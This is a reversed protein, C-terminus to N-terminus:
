LRTLEHQCLKFAIADATPSFSGMEEGETDAVHVIKKTGDDNEGVILDFGDGWGSTYLDLQLARLYRRVLQTNLHNKIEAATHRVAAFNAKLFDRADAAVQDASKLDEGNRFQGWRRHDEEFFQLL